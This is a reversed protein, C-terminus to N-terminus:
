VVVGRSSSFNSRFNSTDYAEKGRPEERAHFTCINYYKCMFMVCTDSTVLAYSVNMIVLLVHLFTYCTMIIGATQSGKIM